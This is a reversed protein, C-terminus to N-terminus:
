MLRGAYTARPYRVLLEDWQVFFLSALRCHYLIKGTLSLRTVRAISEVYVIRGRGLGLVRILLAALCIPVCTGPGNVLVLDPRARLVMPITAVLARASSLASSAIGQGVERSRPIVRVDFAPSPSPPADLPLKPHMARRPARVQKSDQSSAAAAQGDDAVESQAILAELARAKDASLRDTAAVVYSRPRYIHLNFKPLLKLMEATHGGSGLVIM